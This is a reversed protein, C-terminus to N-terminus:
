ISVGRNNFFVKVKKHYFTRLPRIANIYFCYIKYNLSNFSILKENKYCGTVIGLIDDDSINYEKQIMNDGCTTYRGNKDVKIVRHIIFSNTRKIYIFPLDNKKLKRSIKEVVVNEDGNLLPRMSSGKPTFIVKGESNLKEIIIDLIETLEINNNM